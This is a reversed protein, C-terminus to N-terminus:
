LFPKGVGPKSSFIVRYSPIVLVVWTGSIGVTGWYMGMAKETNFYGM